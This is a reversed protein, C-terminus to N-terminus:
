SVAQGARGGGVGVASPMAASLLLMGDHPSPASAQEQPSQGEAGPQLGGGGGGGGGGAPQGAM